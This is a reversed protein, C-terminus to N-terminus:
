TARQVIRDPSFNRLFVFFLTILLFVFVRYDFRCLKDISISQISFIIIDYEKDKDKDKHEKHQIEFMQFELRVRELNQADQLGYIFYRYNLRFHEHKNKREKQKKQRTKCKFHPDCVLHAYCIIEYRCVTKPLYPFPYNPSYVFGSSERKSLIKQDCESGRIHVGNSLKIFDLKVFSESFEYIGKFGRNQTSATRRLTFFQVLLNSESSYLVLNRQQGCYTGILESSNDLGDYM